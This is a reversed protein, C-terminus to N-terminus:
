KFYRAASRFLGMDYNGPVNRYLFPGVRESHGMKGLVRGDPSTIGEIAWLSGNPNFATDMTIRDELDVYQTAIQGNEALRRLVSEPAIFRGEGHSVPVSYIDGPQAEMLWPSLNSCVRTRVISSQHRGIINYTLTPCDEDTDRIEGFPVLGLKVLAQFGNCIGLMLGDRNKLLDHIADTLRPNRLFSVIFKASGDPEDGGSFGGPLFVIQAHRVAQELERASQALADSTLNRIVVTEATMGARVCARASDYECNTGPFAPIVVKPRAIGRNLVTPSGKTWTVAQVMGTEGTRTAYVGELVSENLALLEDISVTEILDPRSPEPIAISPEETTVGIHRACPTSVDGTLEAVILTGGIGYWNLDYNSKFGVRNGFSMKMVADALGDEAAWAAKVKGALCLAHFAEWSAKRSNPDDDGPIFAYVPHGAEKFEPTIVEGAQIPAIAFSIVTPPVDLELFSGSMSDKGGIAACGYDLQASLAGLLAQFPKGWRQPETRLKEFFEQLTLYAKKYDAGAAVLKAISVTVADYAGWYPSATLAEPDCAYAMVSARETEQGPMVPLLATMSQAPTRQTKGGFPMTVSGAGISGDFREVLGRRSAYRLGSALERLSSPREAAGGVYQPVSVAAHKVAGNADLFARSLDAITEGRWKMVMRPSETVAAARYAELNEEGAAAIFAAEDEPAVVVAMREQSESIALETGDLGDYKKRVADLDIELGDALEGIAVSVGGAGFDNCRKIMRTVNPNRFLRQLKREEPANGKQVESAMTTLSKLNHSKSSGTAGGIGDRGTRGGLLIVVDGPAPRERRVNEAPAAAVVAGCELHKAIYGPHYLEAVHGTALGIQNGYSSYGAAATTALKRQPLKGPLTDAFGARPDGCGTVRMAQHVYARGSLPDRICGGICTAAGGFPEIETPHNHTENKFMLLWDQEQGDVVAPVHISCANIEESEDLEPLLGRKKLTKAGITAIDMLTQPRVAAKEEGYVEVRAALYRAYAEKVAPDQIDIDDLHTSFTTHRCHDSWYTDVVRVETITPDRHETDRFYTQLFRLDDLDMALGLKELLAGLGAGDLGTFGTLTEVMPPADHSQVLTEPKDMSAERSEVPNILYGRIKDLDEQSLRGQLMYVKAHRVLPREVGAMLQVCQACSDSRQDFQGPLAEVVLLSHFNRPEPFTEDWVVDVQPESFVIHKAKEYVAPAIGEVDYRNLIRVGELSEIGLFGRLDGLLNGAEPSLGERKEVFVRYVSM